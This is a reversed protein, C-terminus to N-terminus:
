VGLSKKDVIMHDSVALIAAYDIVIMKGEKKLKIATLSDANPEAIVSLIKGETPEIDMDVVRGIEEGDNTILRKGALQKAIAFKAMYSKM